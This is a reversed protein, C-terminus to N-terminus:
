YSVQNTSVMVSYGMLCLRSKQRFFYAEEMPLEVQFNAWTSNGVNSTCTAPELYNEKAGAELTFSVQKGSSSGM